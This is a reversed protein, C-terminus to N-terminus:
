NGRFVPLVIGHDKNKVTEKCFWNWMSLYRRRLSVNNTQESMEEARQKSQLCFSIKAYLVGQNQFNEQEGKLLDTKNKIFQNRVKSLKLVKLDFTTLVM